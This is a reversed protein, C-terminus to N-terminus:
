RPKRRSWGIGALALAAMWLTAPEPVTTQSFRQEFGSLTAIEDVGTAWILINKTVWIENHPDFTASANQDAILDPDLFSFQVRKIGLDVAGASTGISEQVFMGNDGSNTVVGDTLLLSNDKIQKGAGPLVSARFGFQLDIYAFIDDGTISLEGNLVDFRLGPGPDDGGDNLATVNVKTPDFNRGDSSDYFSLSWRDFLKDGASISGGNLLDSLPTAHAAGSLALSLVLAKLLKNM